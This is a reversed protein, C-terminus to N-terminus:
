FLITSLASGRHLGVRVDFSRSDGASTSAMHREGLRVIGASGTGAVLGHQVKEHGM